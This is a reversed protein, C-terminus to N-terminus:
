RYQRISPIAYLVCCCVFSAPTGVSSSHSNTTAIYSLTGQVHVRVATCQIEVQTGVVHLLVTATINKNYM